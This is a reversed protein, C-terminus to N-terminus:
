WSLKGKGNWYINILAELSERIVDASFEVQGGSSVKRGPEKLEKSVLVITKNPDHETRQVEVLDVWVWCGWVKTSFCSLGWLTKVFNRSVTAWSGLTSRSKSIEDSVRNRSYKTCYRWVTMLSQSKNQQEWWSTVEAVDLSPKSCVLVSMISILSLSSPYVISSLLTPIVLTDMPFCCKLSLVVLQPWCLLCLSIWCSILADLWTVVGARAYWDSWSNESSVEDNVGVSILLIRVFLRRSSM